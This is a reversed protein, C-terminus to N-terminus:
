QVKVPIKAAPTPEMKPVSIELVGKKYTAILADPDYRANEPLQISRRFVGYQSEVRHFEKGKKEDEWKREGAIILQQGVLQVQIDKENMGPLEISFLWTKESEAVNVPPMATRQMAAPMNAEFGNGFFRDFLTQFEDKFTTLEGRERWPVVKM